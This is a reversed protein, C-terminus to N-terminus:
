RYRLDWIRDYSCHNNCVAQVYQENTKQMHTHTENKEVKKRKNKQITNIKIWQIAECSCIFSNPAAQSSSRM